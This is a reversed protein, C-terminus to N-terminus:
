SAAKMAILAIANNLAHTGIGPWVSGSEARLWSFAMGLAFVVFQGGFGYQVHMLAFAASTLAAGGWFGLATRELTRSLISRFILEENVAAMLAAVVFGLWLINDRTLAIFPSLEERPNVTTFNAILMTAAIKIGLVIGIARMWGMIGIPAWQLCLARVRDRGGRGAIWWVLALQLASLLLQITVVIYQRTAQPLTRSADVDTVSSWGEAFGVYLQVLFLGLVQSGGFVLLATGVAASVTWDGSPEGRAPISPVSTASPPENM